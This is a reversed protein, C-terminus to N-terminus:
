PPPEENKLAWDCLEFDSTLWSNLAIQMQLLERDEAVRSSLDEMKDLKKNLKDLQKKKTQVSKLMKDLAQLDQNSTDALFSGHPGAVADFFEKEKEDGVIEPDFGVINIPMVPEGKAPSDNTARIHAVLELIEANKAEGPSKSCLIFVRWPMMQGESTFKTLAATWDPPFSQPGCTKPSFNKNLWKIADALGKKPDAKNQFQPCWTTVASGNYLGINFTECDPEICGNIFKLIEDKTEDVWAAQADSQEVLILANKRPAKEGLKSGIMYKELFLDQRVTFKRSARLEENMQEDVDRIQKLLTERKTEKAEKKEMQKLFQGTRKTAQKVQSKMFKTMDKLEKQPHPKKEVKSPDSISKLRAPVKMSREHYQVVACQSWFKITEKFEPTSHFNPPICWEESTLEGKPQKMAVKLDILKRVRIYTDEPILTPANPDKKGKKPPM